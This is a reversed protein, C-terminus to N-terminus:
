AASVSLGGGVLSELYDGYGSKAHRRALRTLQAADIYGMAYAIEELCAIKMGQRQEITRVFAAADQMSDHTGTDLWAYGRGLKEVVLEGRSLYWNNLDTIELEGRWSPKLGAAVNCVRGDYVYFGTVAWNSPAARPKEILRQPQGGGDFEVVGYREPDNVWYALVSAGSERATMRRLTPGLGDGFFINDGLILAAAEGDLFPGGLLFAAAIGNPEPQAVYSISLGLDGGDGLLRKFLDIEEPRTILLIDRIGALMLSSIPYYVLPKDYIPLLQKSVALTAPYLRTGHGGALVIGKM